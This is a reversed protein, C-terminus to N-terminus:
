RRRARRVACTVALMGALWMAWTGPEPVPLYVHQSGAALSFSGIADGSGDQLTLGSVLASDYFDVTSTGPSWQNYASAWATLGMGVLFDVNLQVPVSLTYQGPATPCVTREHAGTPGYATFSVCLSNNFHDSAPTLSGDLQFTVAMTASEGIAHGPASITWGDNFIARASANSRWDGYILNGNADALRPMVWAQAHVGLDGFSARARSTAGTLDMLNQNRQDVLVHVDPQGFVESWYSQVHQGPPLVAGSVNTSEIGGNVILGIQSASVGALSTSSGCLGLLGAVAAIAVNRRVQMGM